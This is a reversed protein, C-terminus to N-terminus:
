QSKSIDRLTSGSEAVKKLLSELIDAKQSRKRLIFRHLTLWAISSCLPGSTLEEKLDIQLEACASESTM